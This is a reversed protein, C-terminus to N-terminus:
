ELHELRHILHTGDFGKLLVSKSEDFRFTSHDGIMLKTADSVWIEGPGSGATIRAAKNVVSGFFDDESQVVDGTHLGIRLALRPEEPRAALMAQITRAAALAQHASSFSSMAGDGLSKVFQGGHREIIERLEKFHRAIVESWGRDGLASALASSSVIDTFMISALGETQELAFGEKAAAVLDAIATQEAGTFDSNPIPISGHRHVIKWAGDELTFILTTRVLFSKDPNTEFALEHTLCAWGTDGNEYAEGFHEDHQVVKPIAGFFAGVGDRVSQGSWIEDEATGFFLLHDEKTMLNSLENPRRNPIAAIWRRAVALIEPSRRVSNM